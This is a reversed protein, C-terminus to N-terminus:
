RSGSAARRDHVGKHGRAVVDQARDLWDRVHRLEKAVKRDM